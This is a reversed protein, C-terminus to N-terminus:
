AINDPDFPAFSNVSQTSLSRSVNELTTQPIRIYDRYCDSTWRGLSQILWRPIGAAAATTAAGIRFSHSSMNCIQPPKIKNLTNSFNKRTLFRGDHWTFLPGNKTPHYKLLQNLATVPCTISNNRHLQIYVGSRFPDTKSAKIHLSITSHSIVKADTYLLTSCPDHSKAHTSTYESVRLFGHFATLM